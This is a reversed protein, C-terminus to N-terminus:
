LLSRSETFFYGVTFPLEENCFLIKSLKWSHNQGTQGSYYLEYLRSLSILTQLYPLASIKKTGTKYSQTRIEKICALNRLIKRLELRAQTLKCIQLEARIATIPTRKKRGIFLQAVLVLSHMGQYIFYWNWSQGGVYYITGYFQVKLSFPFSNAWKYHLHKWCIVEAYLQTYIRIINIRLARSTQGSIMSSSGLSLDVCLILLLLFFFWATVHVGRVSCLETSHSSLFNGQPVPLWILWSFSHGWFWANGLM